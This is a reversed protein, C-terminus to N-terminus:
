LYIAGLISYQHSTEAQFRAVISTEIQRGPWYIIVDGPRDALWGAGLTVLGILV